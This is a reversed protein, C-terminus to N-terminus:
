LALTWKEGPSTTAVPAATPPRLLQDENDDAICACLSYPSSLKAFMPSQVEHGVVVGVAVAGDETSTGATAGAGLLPRLRRRRRNEFCPAVAALM